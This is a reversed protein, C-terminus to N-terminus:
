AIERNTPASLVYGFGRRTQILKVPYDRDIKNRIDSTCTWWM